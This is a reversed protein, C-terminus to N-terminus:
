LRLASPNCRWSFCRLTSSTHIRTRGKVHCPHSIKSM